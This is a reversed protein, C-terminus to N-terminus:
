PGAARLSNRHPSMHWESNLSPPPDWVWMLSDWDAVYDHLEVEPIVNDAVIQCGPALPPGNLLGRVKVEAVELGATGHKVAITLCRTADRNEGSDDLLTGGITARYARWSEDAASLFAPCGGRYRCYRCQEASPNALDLFDAGSEVRTNFSNLAEVAAAAASECEGPNVAVAHRSGDLLEVEAGQPWSSTVQHWLWAYLRLQEQYAIPIEDPDLAATKIDVITTEEGRSEIRDPRGRVKGDKSVLWDEIRTQPKAGVPAPRAPERQAVAAARAATRLRKMQYDRWGAPAPLGDIADVRKQILGDWYALASQKPNTEGDFEGRHAAELVSHAATGMAAAPSFGRADAFSPDQDFAARCPCGELIAFRTPSVSELPLPTPRRAQILTHRREAM